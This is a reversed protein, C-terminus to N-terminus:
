EAHPWVNNMKHFLSRDPHCKAGPRVKSMDSSCRRWPRPGFGELQEVQAEGPHLRTFTRPGFLRQLLRLDLCSIPGGEQKQQAFLLDPQLRSTSRVPDAGGGPVLFFKLGCSVAVKLSLAVLLGGWLALGLSERNLSPEETSKFM